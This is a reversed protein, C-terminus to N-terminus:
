VRELGHVSPSDFGSRRQLSHKLPDFIGAPTGYVVLAKPGRYEWSWTTSTSSHIRYIIKWCWSESQWWSTQFNLRMM